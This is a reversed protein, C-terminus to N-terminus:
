PSSKSECVRVLSAHSIFTRALHLNLTSSRLSKPKSFADRLVKLVSTRFPPILRSHVECASGEVVLERPDGGSFFDSTKGTMALCAGQALDTRGWGM